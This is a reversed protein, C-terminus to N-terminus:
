FDSIITSGSHRRSNEDLYRLLKINRLPLTQKKIKAVIRTQLVLLTRDCDGVSLAKDFWATEPAFGVVFEGAVM